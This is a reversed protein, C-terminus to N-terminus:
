QGALLDLLAAASRDWSRQSSSALAAESMATWHPQDTLARVIESAFRDDGAVVGAGPAVASRHGICDSVVCPTACAAAETITMGWGENVGASVLLHSSGYLEVLRDSDVWGIVEVAAGLGTREIRRQVLGAEPGDGIVIAQLDPVRSRVAALQEIVFPVRKLPVMRAVVIVTPLDSRPAAAPRFREHVGPEVVHVQGAALRTKALLEQRGGVSLTAVPTRRYLPPFASTELFRGVAATGRGFYADWLDEHLHHLVALRRRAWLPSLFPIGNWIDVVADFRGDRRAACAAVNRAVGSVLGGRRVRRIGDAAVVSDAGGTATTRLGVSMGAGAWHSMVQDLLMESGGAAPHDSDRWAVLQIREIGADRARRAAAATLDSMDPRFGRM